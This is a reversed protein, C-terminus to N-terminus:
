GAVASATPAPAGVASSAAPVATPATAPVPAVVPAVVPIPCGSPLVAGVTHPVAMLMGRLNRMLLYDCTEGVLQAREMKESGGLVYRVTKYPVKPDLQGPFAAHSQSLAIDLSEAMLWAATSKIAEGGNDNWAAKPDAVVRPPSVVRITQEVGKAAAGAARVVVVEDLVLASADPTMSYTPVAQVLLDDAKAEVAPRLHGSTGAPTMALARQELDSLKFGALVVRYPDLVQDADEQAKSEQSSRTHGEIVAHTAVGVLLGILGLGPVGPYMMTGPGNGRADLNLMGHFPVAEDPLAVLTWAPVPPADVAPAAPAATAATVAVPASAATAPLLAVSPSADLADTAMAQIPCCVAAAVLASAGARRRLFAAM